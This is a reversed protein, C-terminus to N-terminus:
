GDSEVGVQAFQVAVLAESDGPMVIPGCLPMCRSPTFDCFRVAASGSICSYPRSPTSTCHKTLLMAPLRAIEYIAMNVKETATQLTKAVAQMWKRYMSDSRGNVRLSQSLAMFTQGDSIHQALTLTFM